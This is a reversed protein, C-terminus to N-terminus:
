KIQELDLRVFLPLHDSISAIPAIGGTLPTDGAKRLYKYEVVSNALSPSVIAQDLCSWYYTDPGTSTYFSGCNANAESFYELTPNYMFKYECSEVTKSEMRMAVEKFFTANFLTAWIMEDAFPPVNFDGIVISSSCGQESEQARLDLVLRRVTERRAAGLADNRCDQLHVAFINIKCYESDITFGVYRSQGFVGLSNIGKRLLFRVKTPGNVPDCPKYPFSEDERLAEFNVGKHEAFAAVDINHEILLEKIM